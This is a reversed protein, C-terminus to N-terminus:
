AEAVYITDMPANATTVNITFGDNNMSVFVARQNMSGGSTFGALVTDTGTYGAQTATYRVGAVSMSGDEFMAGSFKQTSTAGYFRVIKPKFGLGTITKNGTSGLTASSITGTKFYNTRMAPTVWSTLSQLWEKLVTLTFRKTSSASDDVIPAEDDGDASTMPPLASIKPM